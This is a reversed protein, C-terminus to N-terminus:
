SFIGDFIAQMPAEQQQRLNTIGLKQLGDYLNYANKLVMYKEENFYRFVVFGVFETM